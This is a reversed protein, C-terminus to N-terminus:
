IAKLTKLSKMVYPVSIGIINTLCGDVASILVKARNQISYAGAAKLPEGSKIYSDIEASSLKAFKVRTVILRKLIKKSSPDYIVTGTYVKHWRGSLIKLFKEAENKNKPKGLIHQGIAILTDATIIISDNRGESIKKAKAIALRMAMKGVAEGRHRSEDIDAFAVRFKLGAEKLLRRRAPSRTGLILKMKKM